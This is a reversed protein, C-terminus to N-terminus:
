LLKSLFYYYFSVLLLKVECDSFLKSLLQISIERVKDNEDCLGNNFLAIIDIQDRNMM